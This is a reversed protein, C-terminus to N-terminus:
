GCRAVALVDWVTTLRPSRHEQKMLWLADESGENGFRLTRRGFKHNIADLTRMLKMAKPDTVPMLRDYIM